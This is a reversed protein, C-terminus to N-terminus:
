ANAFQCSKFAKRFVKASSQLDQQVVYAALFQVSELSEDVQPVFSVTLGPM